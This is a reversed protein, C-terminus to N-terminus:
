PWAEGTTKDTMDEAGHKFRKTMRLLDSLTLSLGYCLQQLWPFRTPQFLNWSTYWLIPFALLAQGECLTSCCSPVMASTNGLWFIHRVSSTVVQAVKPQGSCQQRKCSFHWQIDQSHSALRPDTNPLFPLNFSFDTLFLPKAREASWLAIQNLKQEVKREQVRSSREQLGIQLELGSVHNLRFHLKTKHCQWLTIDYLRLM